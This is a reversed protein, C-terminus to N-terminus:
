AGTSRMLSDVAATTADTTSVVRRGPEAEDVSERGHAFKKCWVHISPRTFYKDGYQVCRLSFPMQAVKAWLLRVVSHQEKHFLKLMMDNGHRINM